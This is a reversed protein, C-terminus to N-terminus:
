IVYKYIGTDQAKLEFKKRLETEAREFTSAVEQMFEASDSV